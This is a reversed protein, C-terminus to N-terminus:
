QQNGRMPYGALNLLINVINHQVFCVFILGSLVRFWDEETICMLTRPTMWVFPAYEAPPMNM